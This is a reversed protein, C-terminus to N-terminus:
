QSLKRDCQPPNEWESLCIDSESLCFVTETLHATLRIETETLCLFRRLARRLSVHMSDSQTPRDRQTPVESRGVLKNPSLAMKEERRRLLAEWARESAETSNVPVMCSM